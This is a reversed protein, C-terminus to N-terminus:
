DIAREREVPLEVVKVLPNALRGFEEVFLLIRLRISFLDALIESFSTTRRILFAASDFEILIRIHIGDLSSILLFFILLSHNGHHLM